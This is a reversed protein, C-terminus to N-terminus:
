QAQDRGDPSVRWAFCTALQIPIGQANNQAWKIDEQEEGYSSAGGWVAVAETTTPNGHYFYVGPESDFTDVWLISWTDVQMYEFVKAKKEESYKAMM